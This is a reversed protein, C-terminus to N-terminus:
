GVGNVQYIVTDGDRYVEQWLNGNLQEFKAIGNPDYMARELQGVIIYKVDYTQLFIEAQQPDFTNYFDGVAAVRNWVEADDVIGRQQRQHWNWGVVGPLGTYITFRTGWGYETTNAEVIVPSGQVNQQMWRIARYDQSLDMNWDNVSYTSYEMYTMGDLTHPADVAMRDIIKARGGLLPYLAAGFVLLALGLQWAASWGARWRKIVAPFLWMLGAAASLSLLTWAQLYFKFVTNMREIDGVLVILEVALTLTMGSGVMFLVARKADPQNPRLLLAAAWAAVPLAIWAIAVRMLSLGIVALVLLALLGIILDRYPRLRQLSSLPTSDMWDITEWFLWSVIVFLFLGWHVLYSEVPTRDGTWRGIASYGQLYWDGFPKYLLFALVALLGAAAAGIAARKIWDPWNLRSLWAPLQAYRGATYILAMGSLALYAPLDWTNTARLTGVAMGGLLLSAGFFMWGRQGPGSGWRWKGRIISLAFVLALITISLAILHAHPDAYLFTFFPFETIPSGPIARSPDWYWRGVDYPLQAGGVFQIFGQLAWGIHQFFNGQEIPIPAALQQWGKWIMRVTGLNGLILLGISSALGALLPWLELGFIHSNTIEPEPLDSPDEEQPEPLESLDEEETQKASGSRALLNWGFSFAGLAVFSFLMPLFINYAISPVVALWKTLVGVLVFGYYYYNLYGGAFWPDYPPFTTSKIVANLYSFDMPKEGGKYPHWLDPNGLRIFLFVLFFTLALGEVVLIYRKREHLDQLIGDKQIFFLGVNVALLLVAALTINVQTFPVGLSGGIWVLWALLIVGVLRSLPYGRDPLGHLAMRVFPFVAWGLLLVVLYWLAAALGPFRNQLDTYSFLQSWTGGARQQALRDQPLMLKNIEAPSNKGKLGALLQDIRQRLTTGGVQMPVNKPTLHVVQSLDVRDLQSRVQDPSYADTKQFIFVKPHDYVTFAEEAFQTNFTLPGLTPESQFVKVLEFGLKGQFMGPQAVNYCWEVTQDAPCGILDRYYEATLPYREPVRTTSGWQRSSSIFLYDAQDLNDIMRERKAADDDWYMEFNLDTRYLGTYYDFVSAGNVNYPLPDDWSSELAQTSGYVGLVGPGDTLNLTLTYVEGSQLSVPQDFRFTYGQGDGGDAPFASSVVASADVNNGNLNLQLTKPETYGEWDVVHPLYVESLQGTKDPVFQFNYPQGPRLAKVPQELAQRIPYSPGAYGLYTPGALNLVDAPGAPQLILFYQRGKQVSLPQMLPVSVSQGRPDNSPTFADTLSGVSLLQQGARDASVAVALTKPQGDGMPNVVHELDVELIPGDREATFAMVLPQQATVEAQSWYPLPQNYDGEAGQDIHLNIAAPVNQFIWSSAAIRTVPRTYIRSFAFAYLFTSILVAAGVGFALPRRWHIPARDNELPGDQRLRARRDLFAFVAWAAIIALAPYVPLQYRMSRSFAVSQWVFYALTWSWLLLHKRWEGKIMRWGMYLFGTWALLGLPLGMGFEVMNRWSFTLPRRAWQLAPPFDVDGASQESLTKLSDIWQPNPKIGLLGPGTFAYPQFIRFVIFAIVAALILNRALTFAYRLRQEQPLRLWYLLAAIVITIALPAASVKSAMAFGLAVGFLGYPLLSKWTRFTGNLIAGLDPDADFPEDELTVAEEAAESGSAGTDELEVTAAAAAPAEVPPVDATSVRVAFYIGLFIFFNTFTDVTFYHSLQIPLVAFAAFATSLLALRTKRFLRMAILYVLLVTGLDFLGSLARGVLHIESYGTQDFLEGVIRTLILPFDGYVYFGYGTNNPNLTSTATSFYESVSSVSHLSSAVMTMFREDPHLHFDGDWNLGVFRFYAGALLIGTLLLGWIVRQLVAPRANQKVNATSIESTM